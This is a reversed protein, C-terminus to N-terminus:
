AGEKESDSAAWISPDRPETLGQQLSCALSMLSSVAALPLGGQGARLAGESTPSLVPASASCGSM